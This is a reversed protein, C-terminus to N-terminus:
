FFMWQLTRARVLPDDSLFRTGQALYFLIANSEALFSGDELEVIPIRGNPNKALFEPTRTQSPQALIDLTTVPVNQGLHALMLSVKHANGSPINSEYLRVVRPTSMAQTM